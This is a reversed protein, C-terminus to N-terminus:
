MILAKPTLWDYFDYANHFPLRKSDKKLYGLQWITQIM